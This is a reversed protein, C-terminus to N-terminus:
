RTEGKMIRNLLLQDDHTLEKQHWTEGYCISKGNKDTDIYAKKSKLYSVSLPYNNQPIKKEKIAQRLLEEQRKTGCRIQAYENYFYLITQFLPNDKITTKTSAFLLADHNYLVLRKTTLGAYMTISKSTVTIFVDLNCNTNHCTFSFRKQKKM